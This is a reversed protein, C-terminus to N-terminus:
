FASSLTFSSETVSATSALSSVSLTDDELDELFLLQNVEVTTSNCVECSPDQCLLQRFRITDHHQGSPSKLISLLKRKEEREREYHRWGGLTGGKRRRKATGQRKQFDKTKWFTPLSPIWVLYCLFLLLLWLGCLFTLNPDTDLFASCVSLCLEIPSNLFSLVNWHSFEM